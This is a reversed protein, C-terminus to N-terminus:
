ASVEIQHAGVFDNQRLPREGVELCLKVAEKLRKDLDALTRSQTHCGKLAPVTGVYYGDEDREVLVSFRYKKMGISYCASGTTALRPEM